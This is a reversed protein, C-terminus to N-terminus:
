NNLEGGNVLDDFGLDLDNVPSTECFHSVSLLDLVVVAPERYDARGTKLGKM